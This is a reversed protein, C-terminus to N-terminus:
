PEGAVERWHERITEDLRNWKEELRAVDEPTECTVASIMSVSADTFDRCLGVVVLRKVYATNEDFPLGRTKCLYRHIRGLITLTTVKIAQLPPPPYREDMRHRLM